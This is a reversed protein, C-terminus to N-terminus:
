DTKLITLNGPYSISGDDEATIFYNVSHFASVTKLTARLMKSPFHASSYLQGINVTENNEKVMWVVYTKKAPNLNTSPALNVIKIEINYNRNNGKKIKVFGEAAPAIGSNTFHLKRSCSFFSFALVVLLLIIKNKSMFQLPKM